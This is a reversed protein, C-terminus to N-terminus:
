RTNCLFIGVGAGLLLPLAEDEVDRSAWRRERERLEVGMLAEESDAM